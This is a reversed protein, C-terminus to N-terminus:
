GTAQFYFWVPDGNGEDYPVTFRWDNLTKTGASNVYYYDGGYEVWSSRVMRGDSGVYYEKGNSLCFTDTYPDGYSNYCYWEGHELRWTGRSAAM